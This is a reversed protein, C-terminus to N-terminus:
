RRSSTRPRWGSLRLVNRSPVDIRSRIVGARQSATSPVSSAASESSARARRIREDDREVIAAPPVAVVVQEAIEESRLEFTAMRLQEGDVKRPRCIPALPVSAGLLREGVRLLAAIECLGSPDRELVPVLECAVPPDLRQPEPEVAAGVFLDFGVGLERDGCGPHGRQEAIRDPRPPEDGRGLPLREVYCGGVSCRREPGCERNDATGDGGVSDVPHQAVGLEDVGGLFALAGAPEEAGAAGEACRVNEQASRLFCEIRESLCEGQTAVPWLERMDPEVTEAVHGERGCLHALTSVRVSPREFREHQDLFGTQVLNGLAGDGM